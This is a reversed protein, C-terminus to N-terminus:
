TSTKGSLRDVKTESYKRNGPPGPTDVPPTVPRLNVYTALSTSSDGSVASLLPVRDPDPDSQEVSPSPLLKFYPAKAPRRVDVDKLHSLCWTKLEHSVAAQRSLFSSFM